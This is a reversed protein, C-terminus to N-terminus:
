LGSLIFRRSERIQNGEEYRLNLISKQTFEIFKLWDDNIFNIKQM